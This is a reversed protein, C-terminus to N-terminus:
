SDYFRIRCYGSCRVSDGLGCAKNTGAIMFLGGTQIDVIDANSGDNFIVDLHMNNMHKQVHQQLLDSGATPFSFANTAAFGVYVVKDMLVRFRQRNDLNLPSFISAPQYLVDGAAATGTSYSQGNTQADYVLIFRVHGPTYATSTQMFNAVGLSLDLKEMVIKQGIRQTMAPGHTALVNLYVLDWGNCSMVGNVVGSALDMGIQTTIVKLEPLHPAPGGFGGNKLRLRKHRYPRMVWARRRHSTGTTYSYRTYRRSMFRPVNCYPCGHGAGVGVSFAGCQACTSGRYM